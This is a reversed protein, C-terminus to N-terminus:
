EVPTFSTSIDRARIEVIAGNGNETRTYLSTKLDRSYWQESRNSGPKGRATGHSLEIIKKLSYTCGGLQIDVAGDFSVSTEIDSVVAGDPGKVVEDFDFPEGLALYDKTVDISYSSVRAASAAEGATRVQTRFGASNLTRRTFKGPLFFEYVVTEDATRIIQRRMHVALPDKGPETRTWDFTLEVPPTSSKIVACDLTEALAPTASLLLALLPSLRRMLNEAPVLPM